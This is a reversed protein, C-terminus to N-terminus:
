QHQVRSNLALGVGVLAMGVFSLLVIEEKFFFYGFFLAFIAGFYNWPTVKSAVDSHLAKTMLFQAIHAFIGMILLYLWELGIPNQWDFLCWIGTIPIAVMPNYLVITMPHDTGKSKIISNYALGAFLASGVGVLMWYTSIRSDFGKILAAGIFAIAFYLWQIHKVKQNNMQTALLVTFIPSLYQITSASALPMHMITSFFMLLAILGMLGRMILWFKNNGWFYIHHKKVYYSAFAFSVVSRFFVLEHVPIHKMGKALANVIAFCFVSGIMLLVGRSVKNM